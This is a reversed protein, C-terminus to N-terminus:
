KREARWIWPPTPDTMAWLGKRNQRAEQQSIYLSRDFSNVQDCWAYGTEIMAKNIWLEGAYVNALYRGFKEKSPKDLTLAASQVLRQLAQKAEFGYEQGLEPADIWRLRIVLEIKDAGVVTLTDGDTVHVSRFVGPLLSITQLVATKATHLPEVRHRHRVIAFAMVAIASVAFTYAFWQVWSDRKQIPITM